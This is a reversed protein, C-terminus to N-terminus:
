GKITGDFCARRARCAAEPVSSTGCEARHGGMAGGPTESVRRMPAERRQGCYGVDSRFGCILCVREPVSSSVALIDPDCEAQLLIRSSRGSAADCGRGRMFSPNRPWGVGKASRVLWSHPRPPGRDFPVSFFLRSVSKKHQKGGGPPIILSHGSSQSAPM